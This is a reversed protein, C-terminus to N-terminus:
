KMLKEMQHLQKQVLNLKLQVIFDEVDYEDTSIFSTCIIFYYLLM